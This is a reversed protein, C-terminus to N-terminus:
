PAAAAPAKKAKWEDMAKKAEDKFPQQEEPALAKWAKGILGSLETLSKDPHAARVVSRQQALFRMYSGVPRANAKKVALEKEKAVSFAAKKEAAISEFPAKEAPTASAWKERVIKTVEGFKAGGNAAKVKPFEESMFLNWASPARKIRDDKVAKPKSPKAAVAKPATAPAKAVKAPAGAAMAPAAPAKAPAAPKASSAPRSAALITAIRRPPDAVRSPALLKMGSSVVARLAAM